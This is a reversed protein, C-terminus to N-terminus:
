QEPQELPESPLTGALGLNHQPEPRSIAMAQPGDVEHDSDEQLTGELGPPTPSPVFRERVEMQEIPTEPQTTVQKTAVTTVEESSEGSAKSDNNVVDGERRRGTSTTGPHHNRWGPLVPEPEPRWFGERQHSVRQRVRRMGDRSGPFLYGASGPGSSDGQNPSVLSRRRSCAEDNGDDNAVVNGGVVNGVVDARTSVLSTTVSSDNAAMIRLPRSAATDGLMFEAATDRWARCVKSARLVAIKCPDEEDSALIQFIRVLVESPLEQWDPHDSPSGETDLPRMISDVEDSPSRCAM